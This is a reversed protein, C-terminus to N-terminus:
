KVELQFETMGPAKFIYYNNAVLILECLNGQENAKEFNNWVTLVGKSINVTPNALTFHNWNASTVRVPKGRNVNLHDPM